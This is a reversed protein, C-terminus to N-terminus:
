KRVGEAPLEGFLEAAQDPNAEGAAQSDHQYNEAQVVKGETTWRMWKGTPVGVQYTGEVQKQGTAYWWTFEGDQSGNVYQGRLQMQGNSHWWTVPGVPSDYEYSGDFKIQGNSHWRAWHGHMEAKRDQPVPVTKVTGTWWDYTADDYTRPYLVWGEAEKKGPSYYKTEIAHRRGDIYRDKVVLKNDAGLKLLDGHMQGDKFHVEEWVKGNPLYWVSRGVRRGNEFNWECVTRKKADFVKWIGDIQGDKLTVEAGYPRQFGSAASDTFLKGDNAGYWRMWKGERTGHDYEGRVLLNGKEDWYTWLGHNIYNGAADQMVHREIKVARSPYRELIVETEAPESAITRNTTDEYGDEYGDEYDSAYATAAQDDAVFQAGLDIAYVAQGQILAVFTAMTGCFFRTM